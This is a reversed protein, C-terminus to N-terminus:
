VAQGGAHRGPRQDNSRRKVTPDPPLNQEGRDSHPGPTHARVGGSHPRVYSVSRAPAARGQPGASVAHPPHIPRTKAVPHRSLGAPAHQARSPIRAPDPRRRNESPPPLAGRAAGPRAQDPRTKRLDGRPPARGSRPCGLGPGRPAPVGATRGGRRCARRVPRRAADGRGPGRRGRRWGSAALWTTLRSSYAIRSPWVTLSGLRSGSSELDDGPPSRDADSCILASKSRGM